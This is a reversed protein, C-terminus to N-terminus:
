RPTHMREDDLTWACERGHRPIHKSHRAKCGGALTESWGTYTFENESRSRDGAIITTQLTTGDRIGSLGSSVTKEKLTADARAPCVLALLLVLAFSGRSPFGAGVLPCRYM